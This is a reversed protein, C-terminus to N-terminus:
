ILRIKCALLLFFIGLEACVGELISGLAKMLLPSYCNEERLKLSCKHMWNKNFIMNNSLLGPLNSQSAYDKSSPFLSM